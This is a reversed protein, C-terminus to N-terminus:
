LNVSDINKLSARSIKPMAKKKRRRKKPATTPADFDYDKSKAEPEDTSSAAAGKKRRGKKKKPAKKDGTAAKGKTKKWSASPKGQLEHQRKRPSEKRAAVLDDHKKRQNVAVEKKTAGGAHKEEDEADWREGCSEAILKYIDTGYEAWIAGFAKQDSQAREYNHRLSKMYADNRMFEIARQRRLKDLFIKAADSQEWAKHM